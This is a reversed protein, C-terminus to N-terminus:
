KPLQKNHKEDAHVVRGKLLSKIRQVEMATKEPSIDLPYVLKNETFPEIILEGVLPNETSIFTVPGLKLMIENKVSFLSDVPIESFRM